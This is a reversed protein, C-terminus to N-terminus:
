FIEKPVLSPNGGKVMNLIGHGLYLALFGRISVM